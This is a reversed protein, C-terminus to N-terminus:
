SKEHRRPSQGENAVTVTSPSAGVPLGFAAGLGGSGSVSGWGTGTTSRSRNVTRSDPMPPVPTIVTLWIM